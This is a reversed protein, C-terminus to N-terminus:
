FFIIAKVLCKQPWTAMFDEVIDFKRIREMLSPQGHLKFDKLLKDYYM